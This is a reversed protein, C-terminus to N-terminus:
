MKKPYGADAKIEAIQQLHRDAHWACVSVWQQADLMGFAPHEAFHARMDENTANVMAITKARADKFAKVLEAKTKYAGTPQVPEPAQFKQTRDAYFAAMKKDAEMADAKKEAAPAALAQVAFGSILGESMVLHEAVQAISWRDPATKYALQADSLGEIAKVVRESNATLEAVLAAKATMETPKKAMGEAQAALAAPAALIALATLVTPVRM